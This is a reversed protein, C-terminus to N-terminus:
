TTDLGECKMAAYLAVWCYEAGPPRLPDDALWGWVVLNGTDKMEEYGDTSGSDPDYIKTSSDNQGSDIQWCYFKGSGITNAYDLSEPVAAHTAQSQHHPMPNGEAVLSSTTSMFIVNDEVLQKVVGINPVVYKLNDGYIGAALNEISM